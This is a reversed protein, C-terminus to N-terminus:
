HTLKQNRPSVHVLAKCYLTSDRYPTIDFNIEQLHDLVLNSNQDVLRILRNLDGDRKDASAYNMTVGSPLLCGSFYPLQRLNFKKINELKSDVVMAVKQRGPRFHRTLVLFWGFGEPDSADLFAYSCIPMSASNLQSLAVVQAHMVSLQGASTLRTNTDVALLYHFGALRFAEFDHDVFPIAAQSVIKDKGSAREYSRRSEYYQDKSQPSSVRGTIPDVTLEIKSTESTTFYVWEERSKQQKARKKGSGM